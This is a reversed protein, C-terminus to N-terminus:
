LLISEAFGPTAQQSSGRSSHMGPGHEGGLFMVVVLIVVVALATLAFIKVWRPVGSREQAAPNLGKPERDSENSM